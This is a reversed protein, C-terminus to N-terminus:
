AAMILQQKLLQGLINSLVIFSTSLKHTSMPALKLSFFLSSSIGHYVAEQLATRHGPANVDAGRELLLQVMAINAPDLRAAAQLATQGGYPPAPDIEAGRDLLERVLRISGTRAASTLEGSGRFGLQANTKAGNALLFYSTELDRRDLSAQLATKAWRPREVTANINAGKRLLFRVMKGNGHAAASILSTCDDTSVNIDAGADILVEVVEINGTEAADILLPTLDPAENQANVDKIKDLLFRFLEVNVAKDDNALVWGFVTRGRLEYDLKIMQMDIQVGLNVLFKVRDFDGKYAAESLEIKRHPDSLLAVDHAGRAILIDVIESSAPRSKATEFATCGYYSFSPMNVDAGRNLLLEVMKLHNEEVATTLVTKPFGDHFRGPANINARQNLLFTVMELHGQVVAAQLATVEGTYEDRTDKDHINHAPVDVDAGAEVLLRVFDLNGSMVARLLAGQRNVHAGHELLLELLERQKGHAAMELPSEYFPVLNVDAGASILYRALKVDHKRVAQCLATSPAKERDGGAKNVDAGAEVLMRAVELTKAAVLPAQHDGAPDTRAGAHLLLRILEANSTEVGRLLIEGSSKLLRTLCPNQLLDTVVRVKEMSTAIRVVSEAFAQITSISTWLVPKLVTWPVIRLMWTIFNDTDFNNSSLYVGVEVVYRLSEVTPPGLLLDINQQIDDDLIQPMSGLLAPLTRQADQSWELIDWDKHSYHEVLLEIGLPKCLSLPGNQMPLYANLSEFEDNTEYNYVTQELELSHIHNNSHQVLSQQTWYNAILKEVLNDNLSM